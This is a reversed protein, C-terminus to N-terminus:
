EKILLPLFIITVVPLHFSINIMKIGADEILKGIYLSVIEIIFNSINDM